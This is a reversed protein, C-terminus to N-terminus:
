YTLRCGLVNLMVEDDGNFITGLELATVAAVVVSISRNSYILMAQKISMCHNLKGM